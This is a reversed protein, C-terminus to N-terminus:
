SVDARSYTEELNALFRNCMERMTTRFSMWIGDAGEGVDDGLDTEGLLEIVEEGARDSNSEVRSDGTLDNLRCELLEEM